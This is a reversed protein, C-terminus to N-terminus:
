RTPPTLRFITIDAKQQDEKSLPIDLPSIIIYQHALHGSERMMQLILDLARKRNINDMFVDYEDLIALSSSSKSWISLLLAVQAFSKEGGSFTTISREGGQKNPDVLMSVKRNVDDFTLQAKFGRAKMCARFKDRIDNFAQTQLRYYMDKRAKIEQRLKKGVMSLKEINLTIANFENAMEMLERQIADFDLGETRDMVKMQRDIDLIKEIAKTETMDLEVPVPSLKQAKEEYTLAMDNNEASAKESEIKATLYKDRRARLQDVKAKASQESEELVKIEHMVAKLEATLSESEGILSEVSSQLRELQEKSSDLAVYEMAIKDNLSNIEENSGDIRGELKSVRSNEQDEDLEHEIKDQEKVLELHKERTKRLESEARRKRDKASTLNLNIRQAQHHLAKKERDCDAINANINQLEFQQGIHMRPAGEYAWLSTKSSGKNTKTIRHGNKPKPYKATADMRSIVLTINDNSRSHAIEDGKRRDEILVTSHINREDVLLNVIRRDQIKLVDVIATYKSDAKRSAFSYTEDKRNYIVSNVQYQKMLKTLLDNDAQSEVIFAELVYSLYSELLPSWEPATLEIHRGLPGVPLKQFMRKNTEIAQVLEQMRGKYGAFENRSSQKLGKKRSILDNYRAQVQELEQKVSKMQNEEAGIEDDFSSMDCNNIFENLAEIERKVEELRLARSEKSNEESQITQLESQYKDLAQRERQIKNQLIQIRTEQEKITQKHTKLNSDAMRAENNKEERRALIDTRKEHFTVAQQAFDTAELRNLEQEAEDVKATYDEQKKTEAAEAERYQKVRMYAVGAKLSRKEAQLSSREDKRRYKARLKQIKDRLVEQHEIQQAVDQEASLCTQLANSNYAMTEDFLLSQMVLNYLKTESTATIFERAKDQNLVVFENDIQINFQNLINQVETKKDSVKSGQADYTRYSAGSSKSFVREISLQDGYKEPIYADSGSNDFLIRVTAKNAGNRVFEKANSARNTKSASVGLCSTIATLIASKGSGNAGSIFTLHPNLPVTLNHHCMFNQITVSRMRGGKQAEGVSEQAIGEAQESKQHQLEEGPTMLESPHLQHDALPMVSESERSVDCVSGDQEPPSPLTDLSSTKLRKRARQLENM